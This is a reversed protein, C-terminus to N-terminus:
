ESATATTETFTPTGDEAFTVTGEVRNGCFYINYPINVKSNERTVEQPVIRVDEKWATYSTSKKDIVVELLETICEDGTKRNFAFDKLKTYIADDPNAYMTDVDFEPTYGNNETTTEGLINKKQEVDPNLSTTASELDKGMLYWTPSKTGKFSSDLYTLYHESRLKGSEYTKVKYAM